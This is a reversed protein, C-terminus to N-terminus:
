MGMGPMGGMGGMGGGPAAAPEQEEKPEEAILANTTVINITVSVANAVANKSVKAPDVIGAKVMDVVERKLVDYGYNKDLKGEVEGIIKGPELGANEVIRRFPEELARQLISVGLYEDGDLKMDKLSERAKLLTVGGGPVIGEETAAKTANVADEFRYKREKMQTETAAGVNIIAVGGVLKALREELKEKDYDSTTNEIENRIQVVRADIDSKNGKGGVITTDEKTSIVKSAKGLDELEVSELKKGLEESIVQGGTVAAIDQLMAKRRDGFGPAKLALIKLSGRMKNVVLTALAQGDIDEAIIVLNQTQKVIKELMPVLDNVTSIKKDTILIHPDDIVATMKDVDTVFYPSLYGSDFNMGEKVELEDYLGKGDEVTIVGDAGVKDMAKAITKGIEKDQASITAVEQREESTSIPESMEEISKVVKKVAEELGRRILMPNAGAAVNKLGENIMSQALVTATTTGDGAVDNTKTAAQLVLKAGMNAFKDKLEVEKSVTVGDHTVTPGGWEKDLGVNKGLPGMTSAVANALADVGEKLKARADQNYVIQKAM